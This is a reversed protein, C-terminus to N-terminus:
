YPFTGTVLLQKGWSGQSQQAPEVSMTTGGIRGKSMGDGRIPHNERGAYGGKVRLLGLTGFRFQLSSEEVRVQIPGDM